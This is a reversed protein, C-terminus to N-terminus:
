RISERSGFVPWWVCLCVCVGLAVRIGPFGECFWVGCCSLCRYESCCRALHLGSAFEINGALEVWRAGFRALINLIIAITCFLVKLVCGDPVGVGLGYSFVIPATDVFLHM